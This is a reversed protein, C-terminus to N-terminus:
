GKCCIPSELSGVLLCTKAFINLAGVYDADDMYNCVVCKFKEGQRNHEHLMGCMPCRQSTYAPDVTILFVRNEECKYQIKSTVQRPTWPAM